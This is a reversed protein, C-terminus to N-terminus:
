KEVTFGATPVARQLLGIGGDHSALGEAVWRSQGRFSLCVETGKSTSNRRGGNGKGEEVQRTSWSNM